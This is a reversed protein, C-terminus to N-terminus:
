SVLHLIRPRDPFFAAMTLIVLVTQAVDIYGPLWPSHAPICMHSCHHSWWVLWYTHYVGNLSCTYQTAMVNLIVSRTSYHIQMLNQTLSSREEALVIWIVWFAEAIPLQHSAAEDCCRVWKHMVDWAHNKPPFMLDGLHSLRGLLGSKTGQSKQSKGFSFDAKFPFPNWVTWSIWSLIIPYSISIPLVTHPGLYGSRLPSLCWQGIYM